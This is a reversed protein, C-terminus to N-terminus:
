VNYYTLSNNYIILVESGNYNLLTLLPCSVFLAEFDLEANSFVRTKSLREVARTAGLKWSAIINVNSPNTDGTWTHTNMHDKSSQLRRNKLGWGLDSHKTMLDTYELANCVRDELQLADFNRLAGLMTRLTGFLMELLHTGNLFVFYEPIKEQQCILVDKYVCEVFTIIARYTQSAIVKACHRKMVFLAFAMTSLNTLHETLSKDFSTFLVSWCDAVIALPKLEQLKQATTVVQEPPIIMAADSISMHELKSLLQFSEVMAPVNQHDGIKPAPYLVDLQHRSTGTIVHMLDLYESLLFNVTSVCQGKARVFHGRHNKGAHQPDFSNSISTKGCQLDFFRLGVTNSHLYCGIEMPQSFEKMTKVNTTDCDSSVSLIPGLTANLNSEEWMSIVMNLMLLQDLAAGEYGKLQIFYVFPLIFM